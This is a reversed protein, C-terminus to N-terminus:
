NLFDNWLSGVKFAKVEDASKAKIIHPATSTM